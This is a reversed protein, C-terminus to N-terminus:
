ILLAPQMSLSCVFRNQYSFCKPKSHEPCQELRESVTRRSRWSFMTNHTACCEASQTLSLWALNVWLQIIVLYISYLPNRGFSSQEGWCTHNSSSPTHHWLESGSWDMQFIRPPGPNVNWDSFTPNAHLTLVLSVNIQFMSREQLNHLGASWRRLSWCKANFVTCCMNCNVGGNLRTFTEYTVISNVHTNMALHRNDNLMM